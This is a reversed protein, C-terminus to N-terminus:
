KNKEQQKEYDTVNNGDNKAKNLSENNWIYIQHLCLFADLDFPIRKWDHGTCLTHLINWAFNLEKARLVVAFMIGNTYQMYFLLPFKIFVFQSISLISSIAQSHFSIDATM